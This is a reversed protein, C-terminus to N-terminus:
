RYDHMGVDFSPDPSTNIYTPAANVQYTDKKIRELLQQYQKYRDSANVSEPGIRYDVRKALKALLNEICYISARNVDDQRISLAFIIEEDTFQPDDAETDGTLFRVNDKKSASPDGSYSWSM